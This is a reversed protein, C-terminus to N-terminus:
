KRNMIKHLSYCWIFTACFIVIIDIALQKNM